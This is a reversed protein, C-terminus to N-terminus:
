KILLWTGSLSRAARIPLINAAPTFRWLMVMAAIAIILGACGLPGTVNHNGFTYAWLEVL